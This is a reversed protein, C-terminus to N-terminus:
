TIPRPSNETPLSWGMTATASSLERDEVGRLLFVRFRAVRQLTRRRNARAEQLHPDRLLGGLGESFAVRVLHLGKILSAQGHELRWAGDVLIQSPLEFAHELGQINRRRFGRRRGPLRGSRRLLGVLESISRCPCSGSQLLWDPAIAGHNIGPEAPPGRRSGVGPAARRPAGPRLNQSRRLEQICPPRQDRQVRPVRCGPQGAEERGQPGQSSCLGSDHGPLKRFQGYRRARLVPLPLPRTGSDQPRRELNVADGSADAGSPGARSEYPCGWFPIREVPSM